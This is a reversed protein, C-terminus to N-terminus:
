KMVLCFCRNTISGAFVKASSRKSHQKRSQYSAIFQERRRLHENLSDGRSLRPNRGEERMQDQLGWPSTPRVTVWVLSGSLPLFTLADHFALYLLQWSQRVQDGLLDTQGSLTVRLLDGNATRREM